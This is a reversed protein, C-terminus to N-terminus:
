GHTAVRASIADLLRRRNNALSFHEVRGRGATVLSERLPTDTLVRNVATAV